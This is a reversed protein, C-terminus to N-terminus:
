YQDKNDVIQAITEHGYVYLIAYLKLEWSNAFGHVLDYFHWVISLPMHGNSQLHYEWCAGTAGLSHELLSLRPVLTSLM